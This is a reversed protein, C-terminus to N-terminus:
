RVLPTIKQESEDHRRKAQTGLNTPHSRSTTLGGDNNWSRGTTKSRAPHIFDLFDLNHQM